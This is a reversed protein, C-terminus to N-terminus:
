PICTNGCKPQVCVYTFANPVKCVLTQLVTSLWKKPNDMLCLEVTPAHHVAHSLYNHSHQSTTLLVTQLLQIVLFKTGNLLLEGTIQDWCYFVFLQLFWVTCYTTQLVALEINGTDSFLHIFTGILFYEAWLNRGPTTKLHLFSLSNSKITAIELSGNKYKLQLITLFDLPIWTNLDALPSISNRPHYSHVLARYINHINKGTWRHTSYQRDKLHYFCCLQWTLYTRLCSYRMLWPTRYYVM